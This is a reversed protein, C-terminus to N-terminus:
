PFFEGIMKELAKSVSINIVLDAEGDNGGMM